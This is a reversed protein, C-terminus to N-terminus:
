LVTRVDKAMCASLNMLRTQEEGDLEITALIKDEQDAIIISQVKKTSLKQLGSPITSSNRLILHYIGQCNMQGGNRFENRQKGGEWVFTINHEENLCKLKSHSFVFFYDIDKGSADISLRFNSFDKFGTSLKNRGTFTDADKILNCDQAFVFLPLLFVATLIARM